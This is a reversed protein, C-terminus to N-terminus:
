FDKWGKIVVLVEFAGMFIVFLLMPWLGEALLLVKVSIVSLRRYYRGCVVSM